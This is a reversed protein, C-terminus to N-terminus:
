AANQGYNQDLMNRVKRYLTQIVELRPEIDDISKERASIEVQKCLEALKVAGVGASSSKLTHAAFQLAAVDGNRAADFLQEVYDSSQELYAKVIRELIDKRGNRERRRFKDLVSPDLIEDNEGIDVSSEYEPEHTRVPAPPEPSDTTKNEVAPLWRKLVELLQWESFPKSLYDDMGAKLCQERDGQLANATLAVITTHRRQQTSELERIKRTADYGDMKPMQCDMFILDYKNESWADIVALGDEVVDIAVGFFELLGLAVEQNVLNDEALLLRGEFSPHAAQGSEETTPEDSKITANGNVGVLCNYLESQRAPKVLYASIGAAQYDKANLYDCISSLMVRRVQNIEPDDNIEQSLMIGDMGPMHMDLVALEFPNGAAAAERLAVLAEAGSACSYSEVDWSAMQLELIERNTPNDDVILIRLDSLAGHNASASVASADIELPIQFWFGSGVDPVSQLGLDGEMLAVIQSCIALGLGSGGYQRNTAADAQTFSEFINTQVNEPIGIGTDRVEFHLRARNDRAPINKVRVIIEGEETFKIANGVMNTLIQRIRGADGIYGTPLDPHLACVLELGKGHAAEAFLEGIDEVLDRLNFPACQLEMKGAEIKSFDLIDNIVRLLSEGSRYVTKAFRCQKEDLETKLLVETMGLVGNIPTRIEHSMNALFESKARSANEAKRRGEEIEAIHRKRESEKFELAAAMDNFANSITAMEDNGLIPIRHNFDGASLKEVGNTLNCIRNNIHRRLFLVLLLCIIICGLLLQKTLRQSASTESMIDDHRAEVLKGVIEKLEQVSQDMLDHNEKANSIMERYTSTMGNLDEDAAVHIAHKFRATAGIARGHASIFDASQEYSTIDALLQEVRTLTHKVPALTISGLQIFREFELKSLALLDAIAKLEVRTLDLVSLQSIKGLENRMKALQM